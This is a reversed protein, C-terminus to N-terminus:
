TWTSCAFVEQPVRTGLLLDNTGAQVFSRKMENSLVDARYHVGSAERLPTSFRPICASVGPSDLPVGGYM